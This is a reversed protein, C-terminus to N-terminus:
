SEVASAPGRRGLARFGALMAVVYAAAGLWFAASIGFALALAVALVSAGVSFAGNIGWLWPALGPSRELALRMGLPFPMGMFIGPVGLLISAILIRIPTASGEFAHTLAPTAAGAALLTLPVIALALRERTRPRAGDPAEPSDGREGRVLRGSLLSGAGGAALLVLLVVSLAYTPHGLFVVLRQMQAIEILMFGTGIGAFLIVLSSAGHLSRRGRALAVPLLLGLLCLITVIALLTALVSVARMNFINAGQEWTARIAPDLVDRLRLMQFFFPSDDTPAAINVPFADAVKGPDPDSALRQMLPDVAGSPSLVTEFSLKRCTEELLTVDAGGLPEKSVIVTGVGDPSFGAPRPATSRAVFLHSRADAIGAERLARRALSVLRYIESPRDEYYWRSFTLVGRPSLHDLLIRWGEVTYLGNESFAFAGAATAAWTDIFSVQVLDFKRDSRALWSRAEDAVLTVRPDRELHGSFDGFPGTLAALIDPNIEVGVVSKQDFALAALIDRGGGVGVVLVDSGPRLYHALDVIDDELFAVDRVDGRFRTITTAASADIELRLQPLPPWAPHADSMGWGFPPLPEGPDGSVRIRSFSNWKEYLGPEEIQGKVWLLRILPTGRSALFAGAGALLGLAIALGSTAAVLRNPSSAPASGPNSAARPSSAAFCLAGAAALFSAILVATPGDTLGLAPIVLLCGAAAGTLDAAYLRPVQDRYRSLALAIATGSFTFPIALIAFTVFLSWRGVLTPANVFPIVLHTLFALVASVAFWAAARALSSATEREPFREPLLYVVIGGLTLGFMAISIAFFAFHYWMTVSFIRTLLIEYMLTSLTLLFVGAVIGRGATSPKEGTV